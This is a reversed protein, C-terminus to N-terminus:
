PCMEEREGKRSKVTAIVQRTTFAVFDIEKTMSRYGLYGRRKRKM